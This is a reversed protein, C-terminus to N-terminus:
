RTFIIQMGEKDEPTAERSGAGKGFKKRIQETILLAATITIGVTAISLGIKVYKNM